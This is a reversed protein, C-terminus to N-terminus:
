DPLTETTTTIKVIEHKLKPWRERCFQLMKRAHGLKREDIFEGIHLTPTLYFKLGHTRRTGTSYTTMINYKTHTRKKAM